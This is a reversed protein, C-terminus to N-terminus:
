FASVACADFGATEETFGGTLKQQRTTVQARNFKFCVKEMPVDDVATDGDAVLSSVVANSLVYSVIPKTTDGGLKYVSITVAPFQAATAAAVFLKPSAVDSRKQVCFESFSPKSQGPACVGVAGYKTTKTPNVGFNYSLGEIQNKAPAFISDGPIGPVDVFLRTSAHAPTGTAAITGALLAFRAARMINM